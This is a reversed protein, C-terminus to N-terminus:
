YKETGDTRTIDNLKGSLKSRTAERKDQFYFFVTGGIAIGIVLGYMIMAGM